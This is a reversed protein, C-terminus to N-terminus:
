QGNMIVRKSPPLDTKAYLAELPLTVGLAAISVADDINTIVTTKWESDTTGMRERLEVRVEESSVFLMARLPEFQAYRDAKDGLDYQETAPSLVECVLVPNILSTPDKADFKPGCAVSCAPYFYTEGPQDRVRQDSNYVICNTNGLASSMAVLLNVSIQNHRPKGGAMMYVFGSVFEHKIESRQEFDLYHSVSVLPVRLATM